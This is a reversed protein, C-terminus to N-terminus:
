NLIKHSSFIIKWIGDVNVFGCKEVMRESAKNTNEIRALAGSVGVIKCWEIMARMFETGYGMERVEERISIGVEVNGFRDPHGYFYFQGIFEEGALAIWITNFYTGDMLGEIYIREELNVNEKWEDLEQKNLPFIFLRETEIM